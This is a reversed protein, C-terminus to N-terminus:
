NIKSGSKGSWGDMSEKEVKFNSQRQCTKKFINHIEEKKKMKKKKKM